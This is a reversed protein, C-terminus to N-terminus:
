LKLVERYFLLVRLHLIQVLLINGYNREEEAASMKM